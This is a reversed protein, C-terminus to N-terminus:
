FVLDKLIEELRQSKVNWCYILMWSIMTIDGKYGWVTQDWWSAGPGTSRWPCRHSHPSCPSLWPVQARYFSNPSACDEKVDVSTWMDDVFDHSNFLAFSRHFWCKKFSDGNWSQDFPEVGWFQGRLKLTKGPWAHWGRRWCSPPRLLRRRTGPHTTTSGMGLHGLHGLFPPTWLLTVNQSDRAPEEFVTFIWVDIQRRSSSQRAITPKWVLNISFNGAIKTAPAWGAPSAPDPDWGCGVTVGPSIWFRGCTQDQLLTWTTSWPSQLLGHALPGSTTGQSSKSKSKLGELLYM